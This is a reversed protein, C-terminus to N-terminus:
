NSLSHYLVTDGSAGVLITCRDEDVERFATDTSALDDASSDGSSQEAREGTLPTREVLTREDSDQQPALDNPGTEAVTDTDFMGDVIHLESVKETSAALQNLAADLASDIEAAVDQAPESDDSEYAEESTPSDSGFEIFLPEHIEDESDLSRGYTGSDSSSESPGGIEIVGPRCITTAPTDTGSSMQETRLDQGAAGTSAASASPAPTATAPASTAPASTASLPAAPMPLTGSRNTTDSRPGGFEIVNDTVVHSPSAAAPPPTSNSVSHEDDDSAVTSASWPYPLHILRRLADAVCSEDVIPLSREAALVFSEDALLCLCRPIGDAAGILREVASTTMVEKLPRGADKLRGAVFEVSERSTLPQLFVHCRIRRSFDAFQPRTLEEELSLPGAILARVIGHGDMREETFARIENLVQVTLLHADDVLLVVPGWFDRSARLRNLVQWRNIKETEPASKGESSGACLGAAGYLTMLLEAPTELGAASCVIVRSESQLLSQLHYLLSTKGVGAPATLVATGQDSRLTHLLQPLIATASQSLFVSQVGEAAAFPPHHFGFHSLYM